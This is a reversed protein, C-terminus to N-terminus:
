QAIVGNPLILLLRILPWKGSEILFNFTVEACYNYKSAANWWRSNLNEYVVVPLAWETAKSQAEAVVKPYKM